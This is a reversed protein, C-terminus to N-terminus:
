RFFADGAHADNGCQQLKEQVCVVVYSGILQLVERAEDAAAADILLQDGTSRCTLLYANNDFAGVSCKRITLQALDRVDSPGGPTVNGAYM